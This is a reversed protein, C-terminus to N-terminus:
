FLHVPAEDSQDNNEEFNEWKLEIVLKEKALKIAEFINDHFAEAEISIEGEKLIIVIRHNAPKLKESTEIEIELFRNVTM